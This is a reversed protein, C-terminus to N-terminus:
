EVVVSTQTSLVGPTAQIKSVVLAGLANMDEAGALVIVDHQGTVVHASRVGEIKAIADRVENAKGKGAEVFIYASVM